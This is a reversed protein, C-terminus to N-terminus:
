GVDGSIALLGEVALIAPRLFRFAGVTDAEFAHNTFGPQM